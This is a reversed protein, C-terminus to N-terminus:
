EHTRQKFFNKKASYDCECEKNENYQNWITINKITTKEVIVTPHIWKKAPDLTKKVHGVYM